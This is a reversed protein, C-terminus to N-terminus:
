AGGSTRSGTSCTSRYRISSAPSISSSPSSSARARNPAAPRIAPAHAAPSGPGIRQRQRQRRVPHRAASSLRLHRRSPPARHGIHGRGGAGGCKRARMAPAPAVIAGSAPRHRTGGSNGPSARALARAIRISAGGGCSSGRGNRATARQSSAVRPKAAGAIWAASSAPPAQHQQLIEAVRPHALRDVGVGRRRARKVCGAISRSTSAPAADPPATEARHGAPAAARPPATPRITNGPPPARRRDRRAIVRRPVRHEPMRQGGLRHRHQAIIM